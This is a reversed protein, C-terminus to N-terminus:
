DSANVASVFPPRREVEKQLSAVQEVSFVCLGREYLKEQVRRSNVVVQLMQQRNLRELGGLGGGRGSSVPAASFEAATPMSRLVAVQTQLFRIYKYAEELMSGTDMRREWPMLSEIIRTRDSIKKRRQRSLESSPLPRRHRPSTPATPPARPPPSWSFSASSGRFRKHSPEIVSILDGSPIGLPVSPMKTLLPLPELSRLMPLRHFGPSGGDVLISDLAESELPEIKTTTLKPRRESVCTLHNSGAAPSLLTHSHGVDDHSSCFPRWGAAIPSTLPFIKSATGRREESSGLVVSSLTLSPSLLLAKANKGEM